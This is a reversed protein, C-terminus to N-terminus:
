DWCVGFEVFAETETLLQAGDLESLLMKKLKTKMPVVRSCSRCGVHNASVVYSLLNKKLFGFLEPVFKGKFVPLHLPLDALCCAALARSATAGQDAGTLLKQQRCCAGIPVLTAAASDAAAAGAFACM